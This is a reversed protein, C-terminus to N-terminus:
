AAGKACPSIKTFCDDNAAEFDAAAEAATSGRGKSWCDFKSTMGLHRCGAKHIEYYSTRINRAVTYDM